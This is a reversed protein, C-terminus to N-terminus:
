IRSIPDVCSFFFEIAGYSFVLNKLCCDLEKSHVAFSDKVFMTYLISDQLNFLRSSLLKM